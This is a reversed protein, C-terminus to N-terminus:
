TTENGNQRRQQWYRRLSEARKQRTETTQVIYAAKMSLSIKKRTEESPKRKEGIVSFHVKVKRGGHLGYVVGNFEGADLLDAVQQLASM